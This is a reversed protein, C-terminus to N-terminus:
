HYGIRVHKPILFVRPLDQSRTCQLMELRSNETLALTEAAAM